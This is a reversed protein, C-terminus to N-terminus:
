RLVAAIWRLGAEAISQARLARGSLLVGEDVEEVRVGRPAAERLAAAIRGRQAKRRAEAFAAARMTLDEFM